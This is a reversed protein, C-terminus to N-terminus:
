FDILQEPRSSTRTAYTKTRPAEEGRIPTAV